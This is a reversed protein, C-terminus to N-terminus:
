KSNLVSRIVHYLALCVGLFAFIATFIPSSSELKKDIKIGVITFLGIIAVMQFGMGAYTYYSKLSNNGLDKIKTPLKKAAMILHYLPVLNM